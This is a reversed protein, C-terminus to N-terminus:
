TDLDRRMDQYEERTIDGRAYREKLIELASGRAANGTVTTGARQGSRVLMVIAVILGVLLALILLSVLGMMIMGGWNWMHSWM